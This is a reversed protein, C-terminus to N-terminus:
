CRSESSPADVNTHPLRVVFRSGQGEASEVQITGGHQQVIDRAGALGLGSGSIRGVVNGARHFREFIRPLDPAPIGLGDDEVTLEAWSGDATLTVTVDGGDPSYKIANSILNGLVRDLRGADWAGLLAPVTTDFSLRHGDSLGQHRVVASRAVEVLDVARLNLELPRGAQLHTADQLEDIQAALSNVSGEITELRSLLEEVSLGGPRAARRRLLQINGRVVTLPNRLDHSIHGMLEDRTRIAAEAEARAAREAAYLRAREIAQAGQQALALMFARDAADFMRPGRFSLRMGGVGRGELLLPLVALAGHDDNELFRRLHPFATLVEERSEFYLPEGNRLAVAVPMNGSVALRSYADRSEEGYGIAHLAELMETTEDLVLVAGAVAGVASVSQRAIAEAVDEPTLAGALAATMAQLCASRVAARSLGIAHRLGSALREASLSAKMLYDVAGAKMLEVAVDEDGRGTMVLVPLGPAVTRIEQLLAPGDVDPLYYDLLLCDYREAAIRELAEAASGAEDIRLTLGTQRLYRRVAQRDVVDDDVILLMLPAHSGLPGV